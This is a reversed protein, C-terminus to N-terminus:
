QTSYQVSMQITRAGLFDEAHELSYAASKRPRRNRMQRRKEAEHRVDIDSLSRTNAEPLM